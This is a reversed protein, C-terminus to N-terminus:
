IFRFQWIWGNKSGKGVQIKGSLLCKCASGEPTEVGRVGSYSETLIRMKKSLM